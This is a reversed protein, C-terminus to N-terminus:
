YMSVLGCTALFAGTSFCLSVLSFYAAVTKGGGVSEANELDFTFILTASLAYGVAM